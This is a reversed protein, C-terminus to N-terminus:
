QTYENRWQREAATLKDTGMHIIEANRLAFFRIKIAPMKAVIAKGVNM